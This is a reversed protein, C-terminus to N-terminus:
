MVSNWNEGTCIQFTTLMATLFSDFNSIDKSYPREPTWPAHPPCTSNMYVYPEWPVYYGDEDFHFKQSFLQMGFLAWLYLFLVFVAGFALFEWLSRAVKNKTRLVTYLAVAAAVAAVVVVVVALVAFVASHTDGFSALFVFVFNLSPHFWM